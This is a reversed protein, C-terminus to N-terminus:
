QPVRATNVRILLRGLRLQITTADIASTRESSPGAVASASVAVRTNRSAMCKATAATSIGPRPRTVAPLRAHAGRECVRFQRVQPRRPQEAPDRGDALVTSGVDSRDAPPKIRLGLHHLDGAM